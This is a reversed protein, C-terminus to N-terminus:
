TGQGIISNFTTPEFGVQPTMYTDHTVATFLFTFSILIKENLKRLRWMLQFVQDQDFHDALELYTKNKTKLNPITLIGKLDFCLCDNTITM